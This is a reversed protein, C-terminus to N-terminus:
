PGSLLTNKHISPGFAASSVYGLGDEGGVLQVSALLMYVETHTYFLAQHPHPFTGMTTTLKGITRLYILLSSISHKCLCSCGLGPSVGPGASLHLVLPAKRMLGEEDSVAFGKPSGPTPISDGEREGWRATTHPRAEGRQDM